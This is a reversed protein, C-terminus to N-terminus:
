PTGEQPPKPTGNTAVAPAAALLDTKRKSGISSGLWFGVVTTGNAAVVGILIGLNAQDKSAWVVALALMFVVSWMGSVIIAGLTMLDGASFRAAAAPATTGSM